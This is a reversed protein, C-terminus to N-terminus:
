HGSIGDWEPVEGLPIIMTEAIDEPHVNHQLWYEAQKKTDFIKTIPKDQDHSDEEMLYSLGHDSSGKKDQEEAICAQCPRAIVYQTIM